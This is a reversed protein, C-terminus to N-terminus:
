NKNRNNKTTNKSDNESLLEYYLKEYSASNDSWLFKKLKTKKYRGNHMDVVARAIARHNMPPVLIYKGSIVEPISSTNSAIIPKGLAAAETVCYGFGETLSPIVICDAIMLYKPLESYKKPEMLVINDKFKHTEIKRKFEAYRKEPRKGLIAVFKSDPIRRSIRSVSDLVYEFGKSGGPRGYFLYVFKDNLGLDFRIKKGQTENIKPDFFDYDIGNYIVSIKKDSIGYKMLNRKTSNSVCVYSTFNLKVIIWEILQHIKASIPNLGDWIAWNEGLIEHVTIVSPKNNFVSGLITPLSANYTTTNLIDYNKSHKLVYAIAFFSFFYRRMFSPVGIRTIKVGNLIESRKTDPLSSTVVEIEHGSAVLSECLNKFLVEAGGTYPHYHELVFMIRLKKFTMKNKMSQVPLIQCISFM